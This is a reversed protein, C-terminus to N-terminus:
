GILVIRQALPDRGQGFLKARRIMDISAIDLIQGRDLCHKRRKPRSPAAEIKQDM